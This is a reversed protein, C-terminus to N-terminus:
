GGGELTPMAQQESVSDKLGTSVSKCSHESNYFPFRGEIECYIMNPFPRNAHSLTM